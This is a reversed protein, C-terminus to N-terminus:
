GANESRVADPTLRPDAEPWPLAIQVLPTLRHDLVKRIFFGEHESETDAMARLEVAFEELGAAAAHNAARRYEAVNATEIKGAVYMPMLWGTLHCGLGASRGVLRGILEKRRLPRAGLEVLMAGVRERHRWEDVEIRQIVAREDSDRLSRSHGQYALAAALEGSYASQLTRVLNLLNQDTDV